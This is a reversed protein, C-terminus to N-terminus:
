AYCAHLHLLAWCGGDTTIVMDPIVSGAALASLASAAALVFVNNRAAYIEPIAAELSPGSGAIVIPMDMTRYRLTKQILMTNRFFNRVWRRGFAASTRRGAELRRIFEASERVLSLYLGGYVRLSPRWEIVKVSASEPITDELFDQLNKESDPFWMPVGPCRDATERFASDAHLVVIRSEPRLARLSSIVYGLGPEIVIYHINDGSLNLAEIYRDAELQPRYRSHLRAYIHAAPGTLGDSDSM